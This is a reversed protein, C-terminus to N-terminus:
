LGHPRLSHSVVSVSLVAWCLAALGSHSIILTYISIYVCMCVYIYMYMCVWVYIYICM